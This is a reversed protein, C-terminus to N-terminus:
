DSKSETAADKVLDGQQERFDGNETGRIGYPVMGYAALKENKVVNAAYAKRDFAISLAERIKINNLFEVKPNFEIFSVSM